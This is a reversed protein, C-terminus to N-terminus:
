LQELLPFGVMQTSVNSQILTKTTFLELHTGHGGGAVIHQYNEQRAELEVEYNTLSSFM